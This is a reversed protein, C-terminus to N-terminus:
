QRLVVRNEGAGCAVIVISKAIFVTKVNSDNTVYWQSPENCETVDQGGTKAM